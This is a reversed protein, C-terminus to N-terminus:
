VQIRLRAVKVSVKVEFLFPKYKKDLLTCFRKKAQIPMPTIVGKKELLICGHIKKKKM